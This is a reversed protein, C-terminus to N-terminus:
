CNAFEYSVICQNEQTAFAFMGKFFSSFAALILKHVKFRKKQVEVTFDSHCQSGSLKEHVKKM